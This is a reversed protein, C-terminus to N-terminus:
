VKRTFIINDIPHSTVKQNNSTMNLLIGDRREINRIPTKSKPENKKRNHSWNRTLFVITTVAGLTQIYNAPLIIGLPVLILFLVIDTGLRKQSSKGGHSLEHMVSQMQKNGRSNNEM